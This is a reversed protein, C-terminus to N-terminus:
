ARAAVGTGGRCHPDHPTSPRTTWCGTTAPSVAPDADRSYTAGRLRWTARKKRLTATTPSVMTAPSEAPAPRHGDALPPPHTTVTGTPPVATTQSVTMARDEPPIVPLPRKRPATQM